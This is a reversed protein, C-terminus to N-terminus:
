DHSGACVVALYPAASFQLAGRFAVASMQETEEDRARDTLGLRRRSGTQCAEAAHELM